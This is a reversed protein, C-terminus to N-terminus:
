ATIEIIWNNTSTYSGTPVAPTDVYVFIDENAANGRPLTFFSTINTSVNEVMYTQGATQGTLNNLSFVSAPIVNSGDTANYATVFATEYNQNGGNDLNIPADAEEDDTSPNVVAWSVTTVNVDVFNLSNITFSVTDNTASAASNDSITCNWTWDAAAADFYQFDVACDYSANNGSQTLPTCSSSTRNAEGTKFGICQATSDNLDAFGNNDTVNFTVNKTVSSEETLTVDLGGEVNTINPVSNGVSLSTSVSCDQGTCETDAVVFYMMLSIFTAVVLVTGLVSRAKKNM